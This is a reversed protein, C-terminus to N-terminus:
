KVKNCAVLYNVAHLHFGENALQDAFASCAKLWLDYGGMPALSVIHDSL